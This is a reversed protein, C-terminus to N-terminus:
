FKSKKLEDRRAKLRTNLQAYGLHSKNLELLDEIAEIENKNDEKVNQRIQPLHMFHTPSDFTRVKVNLKVEGQAGAPRNFYSHGIVHTKFTSFNVSKFRCDDFPCIFLNIEKLAPEPYHKTETLHATLDFLKKFKIKCNADPCVHIKSIELETEKKFNAMSYVQEDSNHLYQFHLGCSLISDSFYFYCGNKPCFVGTEKPEQTQKISCRNKIFKLTRESSALSKDAPELVLYESASLHNCLDLHKKVSDRLRYVSFCIDCVYVLNYQSTKCPESIHSSLNKLCLNMEGCKHEMSLDKSLKLNSDITNTPISQNTSAPLTESTALTNVSAAIDSSAISSTQSVQSVPTPPISKNISENESITKKLKKLNPSLNQDLDNLIDLNELKDDNAIVLKEDDDEEEDDSLGTKNISLENKEHVFYDIVDSSLIGFKLKSELELKSKSRTKYFTEILFKRAEVMENIPYSGIYAGLTEKPPLVEYAGEM